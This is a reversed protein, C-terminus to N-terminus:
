FAVCEVISLHVAQDASQAYLIADANKKMVCKYDGKDLFELLVKYYKHYYKEMNANSFKRSTLYDITLTYLQKDTIQLVEQLQYLLTTDSCDKNIYNKMVKSIEPQAKLLDEDVLRHLLHRWQSMGYIKSAYKIIISIPVAGLYSQFYSLSNSNCWIHDFYEFENKM